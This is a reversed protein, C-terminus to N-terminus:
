AAAAPKKAWTKTKPIQGLAPPPGMLDKKAPISDTVEGRIAGEPPIHGKPAQFAVTHPVMADPVQYNKNSLQGM